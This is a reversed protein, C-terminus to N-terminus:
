LTKGYVANDMLKYLTKGDKDVNKRSRNKKTHQISCIAKAMTILQIRIRPANKKTKIRNKFLYTKMTFCISNCFDDIKIQYNPFMEIKTEIKDPVMPYGNYIEQLKKPYEPGDKLVFTKLNNSNYKNM